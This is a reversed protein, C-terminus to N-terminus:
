YLYGCGFFIGGSVSRRGVVDGAWDSDVYCDITLQHGYNWPFDHTCFPTDNLDKAVRQLRIEDETDPSASHRLAEQTAFRIDGRRDCLYQALGGGGQLGM